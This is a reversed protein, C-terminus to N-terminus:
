CIVFIHFITQFIIKSVFLIARKPVHTTISMYESEGHETSTM